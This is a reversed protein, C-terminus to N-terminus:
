AAVPLNLISHTAYSPPWVVASTVPAVWQWIVSEARRNDGADSARDPALEFGGGNPLSNPALRVSHAATAIDDVGFSHAAPLVHQLVVLANSFGSLAYSSMVDDYKNAYAKAAWELQARAPPDLAAARVHDADPKDSAFLGVAAQGLKKAFAVMCYSSSTGIAVKLPVHERALARQVAVGDDVYASAFLVDTKAAAIKRAVAAADLHENDYPITAALTLGAKRIEDIAGLGVARGYPDDVYTVTYRLGSSLKRHPVLVSHVFDIAARGLTAGSPALRFFNRGVAVGKPLLGVAGTEWYSLHRQTAQVAAIASETSGHSGFVAVPHRAALAAMAEPVGEPRAVPESVLRVDRGQVGGHENIWDVALQVGRLEQTGGASQNGQTPYVAGVVIDGAGAASSSCSALGAAALAGVLVLAVPGVRHRISANIV